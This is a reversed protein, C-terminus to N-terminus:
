CSQLDMSLDLSASFFSPFFLTYVSLALLTEANLKLSLKDDLSTMEMERVRYKAETM